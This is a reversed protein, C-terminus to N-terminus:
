YLERRSVTTSRASTPSLALNIVKVVIWALIAYVLMAILTPTEFVMNNVAPTGTIGFFPWLFPASLSYVLDVFPAQPNAAILKLLFRLGLLLELIGTLLWVFGILKSVGAAREAGVDAVVREQHVLDDDRITEIRERRDIPIMGEDQVVTEHVEREYRDDLNTMM